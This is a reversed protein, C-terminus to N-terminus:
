MHGFNPSVALLSKATELAQRLQPVPHPRTESDALYKEFDDRFLGSYPGGTDGFREGGTGTQSVGVNTHGLAAETHLM